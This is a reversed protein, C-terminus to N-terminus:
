MEEMGDGSRLCLSGREILGVQTPELQLHFCVLRQFTTIFVDVESVSQRFKTKKLCPHYIKETQSEAGGKRKLGMHAEAV